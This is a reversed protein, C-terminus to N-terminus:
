GGNFSSCVVGPGSEAFATGILKLKVDGTNGHLNMFIEIANDINKAVIVANVSEAGNVLNDYADWELNNKRSLLFINM